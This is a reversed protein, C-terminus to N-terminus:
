AGGHISTPCRCEGSPQCGRHGRSASLQTGLADRSSKVNLTAPVLSGTRDLTPSSTPPSSIVITRGERIRAVSSASGRVNDPAASARTVGCAVEVSTAPMSTSTVVITARRHPNLPRM